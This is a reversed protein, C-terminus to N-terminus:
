IIHTHHDGKKMRDYVYDRVGRGSCRHSAKWPQNCRICLNLRRAEDFSMSTGYKSSNGPRNPARQTDRKRIDKPHRSYRTLFTELTRAEDESLHHTAPTPLDEDIERHLSLASHLDTTFERWTVGGADVKTIASRAWPRRIVSQRLFSFKNRESRFAPPCQPVLSNITNIAFKLAKEESPYGNDQMISTIRLSELKRRVQLQRSTSNYEAKMLKEVDGFTMGTKINATFFERATDKLASSFNTTMARQDLEYLIACHHYDRLTLDISQSLDGSFQKGSFYSNVYSSQKMRDTSTTTAARNRRHLIEIRNSRGTGINPNELRVIESSSVAAIGNSDTSHADDSVGYSDIPSASARSENLKLVADKCELPSMELLHCLWITTTVKKNSSQRISLDLSRLYVDSVKHINYFTAIEYLVRVPYFESSFYENGHVINPHDM